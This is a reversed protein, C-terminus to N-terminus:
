PNLGYSLKLGILAREKKTTPQLQGVLGLSFDNFIPKDLVVTLPLGLFTENGGESKM